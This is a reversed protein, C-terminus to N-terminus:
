ANRALKALEVVSRIGLKGLVNQRHREVTRHSIALKRAIEKNKMGAVLHPVVERERATLASLKEDAAKQEAAADFQAESQDVARQLMDLLLSDSFPKELFDFAGARFASVALEVDAHGTLLVIPLRIGRQRAAKLLQLGTMGPMIVDTLVCGPGDYDFEELFPMARSYAVCDLGASAVLVELATRVGQDDDIM